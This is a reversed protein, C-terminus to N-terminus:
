IYRREQQSRDAFVNKIMFLPNIWIRRENKYTLFLMFFSPFFSFRCREFSIGNRM